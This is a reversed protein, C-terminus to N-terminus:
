QTSWGESNDEAHAAIFAVSRTASIEQAGVDDEDHTGTLLGLPRRLLSLLLLLLSLLGVVLLLLRRVLQLRRIRSLERLVVGLAVGVRAAHRVM